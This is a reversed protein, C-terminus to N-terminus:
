TSSPLKRVGEVSVYDIVFSDTNTSATKQAQIYVQLSGTYNSMDFTLNQCVPQGNVYFKVNKKNCFDIYLDVYSTGISIGTAKDDNDNVADDTEIMVENTGILRFLALAAISDITDNRASALGIAFSSAANITTQGQKVRARFSQVNDIDFCLKDGMSICVNQIENTNDFALNLEGCASPTVVAYTPTGASSTDTVVLDHGCSSAQTSSFVLAGLFDQFWKFFNQM